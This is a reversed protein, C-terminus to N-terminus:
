IKQNTVRHITWKMSCCALCFYVLSLGWLILWQFSVEDITAGMQNVKLFGDIGATSPLSYSLIRLWAPISEAPWSFGVLFIAPISTFGLALMSTERSRFLNSLTLGLFIVSFLFPLTFIVLNLPDGRHPFKYIRHLVGFYYVAHILYISLYAGTKGLVLPIVKVSKQVTDIFRDSNKDRATGGLMGIGILLTQQLILVLVAPVVYSAYGGSPNFLPFMMLPLPDRGTAALSESLGAALKRKIEIGASMTGTSQLIGTLVQRYILFYSADAYVELAAQEQRLIRRSFDKDIVVIGYVKREFFKQHAEELSAPKSKVSVYENADIMRTLQRSLNSFDHDVVAVPVDRLVKKMYPLPYFFSYVIIAGFFILMVGTDSFINRYEQFWIKFINKM